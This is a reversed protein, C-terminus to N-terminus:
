RQSEDLIRCGEMLISENSDQINAEPFETETQVTFEGEDEWTIVRYVAEAGTLKGCTAHVMQGKKLFIEAEEKENRALEVRVSKRGQGLAQILDLFSFIKFDASFEGAKYKESPRRGVRSRIARDVRAAILDFHHPPGFVDDVGIDLFNLVLSPDTSDTLVFLLASGDLTAMRAFREVQTPFEEHDLIIAGPAQREALTQADALDEALVTQCAVRALGPALARSIREGGVLLVQRNTGGALAGGRDAILRLYAEVVELSALGGARERIASRLAVMADEASGEFPPIHNHRYWVLALLQAALRMEKGWQKSGAPAERGSFLAHCADLVWDLRWPFRIRTALELTSSFASFPQASGVPDDEPGAPGPLLLHAALQLGDSVIRRMRHRHALAELDSAILGYPPSAGLIACRSDALAQVAARLSRVTTDYPVPNELLAQSVSPFATVETEPEPVRGERVWESFEEVSEASLLLGDLEGTTMAEATEQADSAVVLDVGERQFLPPLFNKRSASASVMVIRKPPRDEEDFSPAKREEETEEVEFLEPLEIGAERDEPKRTGLLQSGVELIRNDPALKVRIARAGFIEKVRRIAESEEPNGLVLTLVKQTKNWTLPLILHDFVIERPIKKLLAMPINEPSPIVAPLQFQEALAALLQDETIAGNEVLNQGLRGGRARQRALGRAIQEQDAFGLTMLIQDLRATKRM